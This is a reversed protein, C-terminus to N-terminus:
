PFFGSSPNAPHQPSSSSVVGPFFRLFFLLDMPLRAPLHVAIQYIASFLNAVQEVYFSFALSSSGRLYSLVLAPLEPYPFSLIYRPRRQGRWLFVLAPLEPYTGLVGTIRGGPPSVWSEVILADGTLWRM